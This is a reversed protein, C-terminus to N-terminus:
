KGHNILSNYELARNLLRFDRDTLPHINKVSHRKRGVNVTLLFFERRSMQIGGSRGSYPDFAGRGGM